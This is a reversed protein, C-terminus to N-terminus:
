TGQPYKPLSLIGPSGRVSTSSKHGMFPSQLTAEGEALHKGADQWGSM